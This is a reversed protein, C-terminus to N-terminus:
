MKIWNTPVKLTYSVPPFDPTTLHLDSYKIILKNKTETFFYVCMSATFYASTTKLVSVQLGVM